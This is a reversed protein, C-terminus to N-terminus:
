LLSWSPICGVGVESGHTIILHDLSHFVVSWKLSTHEPRTETIIIMLHM